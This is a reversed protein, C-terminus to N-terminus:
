PALILADYRIAGVVTDYLEQPEISEGKDKISKIRDSISRSDLHYYPKGEKNLIDQAARYHDMLQFATAIDFKGEKNKAIRFIEVIRDFHEKDSTLFHIKRKNLNEFFDVITEINTM